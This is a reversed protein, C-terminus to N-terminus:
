KKEQAAPFINTVENKNCDIEIEVSVCFGDDSKIHGKVYILNPRSDPQMIEDSMTELQYNHVKVWWWNRRITSVSKVLYDNTLKRIENETM